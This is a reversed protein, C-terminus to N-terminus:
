FERYYIYKQKFFYGLLRINKFELDTMIRAENQICLHSSESNKSKLVM